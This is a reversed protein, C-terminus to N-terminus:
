FLQYMAIIDVFTAQLSIVTVQVLAILAASM